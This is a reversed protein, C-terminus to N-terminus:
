SKSIVAVFGGGAILELMLSERSTVKAHAINVGEQSGFTKRSRLLSVMAMDPKKDHILMANYDGEGLFSLDITITKGAEGNMVSLFWKDGSRRAFAAVEGIESAPLVVTEDWVSPIQKIFEVAPHDLLNGPHEAFVLVPSQLVLASALQHCESTESRREGFSIVTYDMHGALLRTFPITTNHKAWPGRFEMGFVGERAMENPWTRDQGTPKNAGHFNLILKYEAAEKLCAAYLDIIEKAEHDFFDIKAGAAGLDHLLKFFEHRKEADRLDKSHKWLILKVNHDKSYDVLEKQQEFTWRAWHGEVTHYEFGLEGALRSLNKMGELTRPEDTLYGWVSLGPELWDEKFGNPFLNTDPKPAVNYIVHSNFLGNLDSAILVVRWPSSMKGEFSPPETLRQHDEKKYRLVYPYNEPHEHGLRARFEGNGQAELAMGPFNVGSSKILGSETIAAYGHGHSLEITMPPAVWEGSQIDDAVAKKHKEEYHMSTIGHYWVKSERPIRFSTIESNLTHPSGAPVVYRFAAGDNFVRVDLAYPIRSKPHRLTIVAGKFHNNATSHKGRLPYTENREYLKHGAASAGAGIDGGDVILGLMSDEIVPKGNFTMSYMLHGDRSFMQFEIKGDPSSIKVADPAPPLTDSLDIKVSAENVHSMGFLLYLFIFFRSM